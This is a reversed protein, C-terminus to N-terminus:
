KNSKDEDPTVRNTEQNDADLYLTKPTCSSNLYCLLDKVLLFKMSIYHWGETITLRYFFVIKITNM